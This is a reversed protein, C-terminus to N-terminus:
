PLHKLVYGVSSHSKKLKFEVMKINLQVIMDKVLIFSKIINELIIVKVIAKIAYRVNTHNLIFEQIYPLTIGTV